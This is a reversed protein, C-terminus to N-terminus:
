PKKMWSQWYNMLEVKTFDPDISLPKYTDVMVAVEDTFTKKGQNAFAKPHPGHPFGAPHFSIMNSHLNDRSFFNGAHYFLVEDYDINQHFFPVKLADDDTEILRPLFTCVVFNNAAFTTHVSPPLHVRHSMMPMMDNIHLTFPFLDGKWGVTDYVCTEYSFKTMVDLRKIFIEKSEIKKEKKFQNLAELDPKGIAALDYFANRGVMGREPERFYSNLSEIVIFQTKENFVFTHHISKPICIYTGQRFTLLGYETLVSGSGEHCFLLLDGDADRYSSLLNQNANLETAKNWNSYLVVDSNFLLRHWKGYEFQMEVLDFLHPKLPGEINIWKTPAESKLLHSVPGFFGKRGHEEEFLGAPIGKHGQTHSKGQSYQYM